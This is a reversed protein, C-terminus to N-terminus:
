SGFGRGSLIRQIDGISIAVIGGMILAFGVMHVLAETKPPVRRGRRALELLVFAIRGGDLAPLPLINMIALSMSLLATWFVLAAIGSRAVEGTM